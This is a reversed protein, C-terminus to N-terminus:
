NNTSLLRKIKKKFDKPVQEVQKKSLLQEGTKKAKFHNVAMKRRLMKGTGTVKIRKSVTKKM